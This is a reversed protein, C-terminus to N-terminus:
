QQQFGVRFGIGSLRISPYVSSRYASRLLAGSNFWSGGRYVRDSGPTGVNFPDTQAGTAYSAYADATWEWVNGHMDFFGWSNSSYQGVNETQNADSGHDWNADSASISDGWSYATTTGARCAYEWQAETPLVYAWGEPINGAQLSNLRTLFKQIDEWSVMEVPRDPNNPWNSPTASLSDTNGAMVAEYQAQTVEYKGLYFGQALTVEHVPTAVGDQGMTFTGPEVWIMELQVASLDVSLSSPPSSFPDFYGTFMGGMDESPGTETHTTTNGASDTVTFTVFASVREIGDNEDTSSAFGTSLTVESTLDSGTSSTATFDFTPFIVGETNGDGNYSPWDGARFNITLVPPTRVVTLTQELQTTLDDLWDSNTQGNEYRPDIVEFVLEHSGEALDPAASSFGTDEVGDIELTILSTLDVNNLDLASASQLWPLLEGWPDKFEVINVDHPSNTPYVNNSSQFNTVTLTPATVQISVNRTEEVMVGRSDTVQYTFAYTEGDSLQDLSDLRSDGTYSGPSIESLVISEGTIASGFEDAATIGPDLDKLLTSSLEFTLDASGTITPGTAGITVTLPDSRVGVGYASVAVVEFSTTAINPTTFGAALVPMPDLYFYGESSGERDAEDQIYPLSDGGIEVAISNVWSSFLGAPDDMPIFPVNTDLNQFTAVDDAPDNLVSISLVLYHSAGNEDTVLIRLSLNSGAEYDLPQVARLTGNSELAFLSNDGDGLGDVLSYQLTGGGTPSQAPFAKLITDVPQNEATQFTLEGLDSASLPLLSAAANGDLGAMSFSLYEHDSFQFPASQYQIHHNIQGLHGSVRINQVQDPSYDGDIYFRIEVVGAMDRLDSATVRYSGETLQQHLLSEYQHLTPINRSTLLEEDGASRWDDNYYNQILAGLEDEAQLRAAEAAALEAELAAKEEETANVLEATIRQTEAHAEAAAQEAILAATSKGEMSLQTDESAGSVDLSSGMVVVMLELNGTVDFSVELKEEYPFEGRIALTSISTESLPIPDSYVTGFINTVAATYDGADRAPEFSNISLTSSTQGPIAVGDKQWQYSLNKGEAEVSLDVQGGTFLARPLSQSIVEPQLFTLIETGLKDPTIAGSPINTSGATGASLAYPVSAFPRDPLLQQFGREGDNFWVRVHVDEYQQFLFPDIESMGEIASNGLLISYLGGRVDVAVQGLPESGGSSTGDHSWYTENGSANVFAFKLYGLGSFPQGAVRVQGAYNIMPPAALLSASFFLLFTFPAVLLRNMRQM